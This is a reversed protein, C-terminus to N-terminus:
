ITAVEEKIVDLIKVKILKSNPAPWEIEDNIALGLLASGVPSLISITKGKEDMDKPFVLKLCFVEKSSSIKFQVTSNMTVVENPLMEDDVIVARDLEEELGKKTVVNDSLSELLAELRNADKVSLMIQPRNEAM